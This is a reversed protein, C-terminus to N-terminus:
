SDARAAARPGVRDADRADAVHQTLRARASRRPDSGATAASRAASCGAAPEGRRARRMVVRSASARMPAIRPAARLARRARRPPMNARSRADCASPMRSRRADRGPAGLQRHRHAGVHQVAMRDAVAAEDEREGVAREREGAVAVVAVRDRLAARDLEQRRRVFAVHERAVPTSRLRVRGCRRRRCRRACGPRRSSRATERCSSDRDLGRRRRGVPRHASLPLVRSARWSSRSGSSSSGISVRSGRRARRAAARRPQLPRQPVRVVVDRVIALREVGRAHMRVVQAVSSSRARKGNVTLVRGARCSDTRCTRPAARAPRRADVRRRARGALRGDDAVRAVVDVRPRGHHRARDAGGAAAGAVDHVDRVAVAEEGAAEARVVARLLEAARDIGIDPPCVSFCTCSIWSKLGSMMMTVGDYMSAIASSISRCPMSGRADDSTSRCRRRRATSASSACPSRPSAPMSAISM